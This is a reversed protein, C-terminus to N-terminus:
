ELLPIVNVLVLAECIHRSEQLIVAQTQPYSFFSNMESITACGCVYGAVIADSSHCVVINGLRTHSMRVCVACSFFKILNCVYNLYGNDDFRTM